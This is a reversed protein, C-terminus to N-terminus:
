ADGEYRVGSLGKGAPKGTVVSALPPFVTRIDGTIAGHKLLVKAVSEIHVWHQDVLAEARAEMYAWYRKAVKGKDHWDFILGTVNDFDYGSAFGAHSRSRWLARRL